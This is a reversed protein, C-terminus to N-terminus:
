PGTARRRQEPASGCMTPNVIARFLAAFACCPHRDGIGSTLTAIYGVGDCWKPLTRARDSGSNIAIAASNSGIKSAM